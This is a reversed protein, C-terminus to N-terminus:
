LIIWVTIEKIQEVQLIWEKLQIAMCYTFNSMNPM